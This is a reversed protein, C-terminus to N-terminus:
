RGFGVLDRRAEVFENATSAIHSPLKRRYKELWDDDGAQILQHVWVAPLPDAPRGVMSNWHRVMNGGQIQTQYRRWESRLQQETRVFEAAFQRAQRDGSLFVPVVFASGQQLDDDFTGLFKRTAMARCKVLLVGGKWDDPVQCTIALDRSGQLTTTRSPKFCFNVGTGRKITGSTVLIAHEPTEEYRVTQGKKQGAQLGAKGAVADFYGSSIDLGASTNTDKRDEVKITGVINSQMTTRPQYNTIQYAGQNWQIEIQFERISIKSDTALNLSVPVVIEVIKQGSHLQELEIAKCTAPVDFKLLEDASTTDVATALVSLMMWYVNPFLCFRERRM